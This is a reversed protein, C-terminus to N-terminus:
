LVLGAPLELLRKVAQLYRAAPAGDMAQHDFSLSLVMAQREVPQQQELAVRAFVRGIGLIAVQPTNVIPTFVDVGLSGLNTVTFTAGQLDDLSLANDRARQALQKTQEALSKMDLRDADRIVPVILGEEADVALGIHVASHLTLRGDQLTANLNAHERMALVAARVVLDTISPRQPEPLLARLQAHFRLAETMDVEMAITLQATQQLSARMREAIVKRRGSLAVGGPQVPEASAISAYAQVDAQRLRRGGGISALDVGLRKALRRAAPSARVDDADARTATLRGVVTGVAVTAGAPVLQELRGAEPADVTLSVKDTELQYLPDGAAVTSGAPQLWEVLTGETMVDGLLPLKLEM